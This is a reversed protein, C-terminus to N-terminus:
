GATFRLGSGMGAPRPPPLSRYSWFALLPLLIYAGYLIFWLAARKGPWYLQDIHVLTGLTAPVTFLVAVILALRGPSWRNTRIFASLAVAEALYIAGLFRANFPPVDWPWFPLVVSPAFFLLTGGALVVIVAITM